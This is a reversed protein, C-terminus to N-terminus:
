LTIVGTLGNETEVRVSVPEAKKNRKVIVLARGLFTETVGENFNYSPKPNGSGFGAADAGGSVTLTIKRDGDTVLNGAADKLEVPLYVLEEGSYDVSLELSVAEGATALAMRGSEAGDKYAVALIEGPEYVTEFLTRYGAAKGAPQRGASVGNVLLEVEDADAYVEVIVPKGECGKWNWTSASDSIVWPTKILFEGYHNPDQVTIFPKQTLGFVAERFYSAPRRYGTLDIDGCYALQAPFRAGFGGDGWQYAPIGVGAEGIYDWGTWTFDGIVCNLRTIIDWNRAIQPPYTESGVMVRNPYDVSDPEYRATMYNYGAVDLYALAKELRASLLPHVVLEDMKTDMVTMFDNVNGSASTEKGTLDSVVRDIDDGLAMAGNIGALTYRTDDLGKMFSNMEYVIQAGRDTGIEPIENGISYLIVSPHNYDKKVMAEVDTKWWENFYLGYDYNSKPRNWMDFGEDMVYMGLEDCVRLMSPAMPHHSMRVANFGAEKLIMIQRRQADDYTAAGLLGSDHHICAGRLKVQKGNVRLGRKADLALTRIGFSTVAEDIVKGSEADSLTMRCKYVAPNDESWLSPKEVVIRQPMKRKEGPMLTVWASDEAATNGESDLIVATLKLYESGPTLNELETKVSLVAADCDANETKVFVHDPLIYVPGSEMLYVDRYIGAGSYWRSNSMAGSRAQVRIENVAGYKLYSSLDAYFTSYGFMNKAVMVGNVYVFANMYVGELKLVFKQGKAEKPVGLMKAYNYVEADRFGTNGGNPSEAYAKGEIMADHPLDVDRANQPVSWVLAFSDKDPWFKWGDNWKIIKM